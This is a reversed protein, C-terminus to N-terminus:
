PPGSASRPGPVECLWKTIDAIDNSLRVEAARELQLVARDLWIMAAGSIRRVLPSRTCFVKVRDAVQPRGAIV